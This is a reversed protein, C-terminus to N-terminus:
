TKAQDVLDPLDKFIGSWVDLFNQPLTLIEFRTISGCFCSLRLVQTKQGRAWTGKPFWRALAVSGSAGPVAPSKCYTQHPEEISAWGVGGFLM